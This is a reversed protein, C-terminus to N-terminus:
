VWESCESLLLSRVGITKCFKFVEEIRRLLEEQSVGFHGGEGALSPSHFMMNLFRYRRKICSRILWLMEESDSLEPSLWVRNLIRLRYLLGILKARNLPNRSFVKHLRSAIAYNSQKFGITVPIEVLRAQSSEHNRSFSPAYRALRYPQDPMKRFDPGSYEEWSVYPTVSTDVLYGMSELHGAVASNFGWRGARFSVPKVKLGREIADQLETLKMLQLETPLNCLMSNYFTCDEQLPPNNWPHCHAGIECNGSKHMEGLIRCARGDRAVPYSILYVPRVGYSDCLDQFEPIHEVNKASYEKQDYAGWQDEETDVTVMLFRESMVANQKKNFPNDQLPMSPVRFWPPPQMMAAKDPGM